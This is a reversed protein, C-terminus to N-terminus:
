KNILISVLLGQLCPVRKRTLWKICQFIGYIYSPHCSMMVKLRRTLCLQKTKYNFFSVATRSPILPTCQCAFGKFLCGFIYIVWQSNVGVKAWFTTKFIRWIDEKWSYTQHIGTNFGNYMYLFAFRFNVHIVVFGIEM